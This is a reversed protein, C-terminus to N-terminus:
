VAGDEFSSRSISTKRKHGPVNEWEYPCHRCMSGCCYGRRRLYDDTLVMLGNELYFDRGEDLLKPAEEKNTQDSDM